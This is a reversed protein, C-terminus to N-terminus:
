ECVNPWIGTARMGPKLNEAHLESCLQKDSIRPPDTRTLELVMLATLRAHATLAERDVKDRTDAETHGWGRGRGDSESTLQVTPVNRRLFPWHDSYPSMAPEVSISEGGTEEVRSVVDGLADSSQTNAVMGRAHGAGDANIVARVTDLDLSEALKNSGILGLEESGVAAVRVRCNLDMDALLRAATVVTTVGAGNDIAGEAIDHADYHGLLIIEEDTNPGLTGYVNQSGSSENEAEVRVRATGGQAAYDTLWEGTEFSVGLGPIEARENFRLTGTPALQGEIHNAFIFAAAGNDVLHGFTEMRHVFRHDEPSDTSAVAIKGDVDQQAIEEPTGHGVDVLEAEVETAPSYPLAITDFTRDTPDLVTLESDGRTWRLMEFPQQTVNQLGISEFIDQIHDAAQQEGPHGGFRNLQTLYTLLNWSEDDLAEHVESADAITGDTVSNSDAGWGSCLTLGLAGTGALFSRRKVFDSNKNDKREM